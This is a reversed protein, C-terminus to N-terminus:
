APTITDTANAANGHRSIKNPGKNGFRADSAEKGATM